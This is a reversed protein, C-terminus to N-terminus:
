VEFHLASMIYAHLVNMLTGFLGHFIICKDGSM